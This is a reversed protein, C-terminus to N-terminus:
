EALMFSAFRFNPCVDIIQAVKSYPPVLSDTIAHSLRIATFGSCLVHLSLQSSVSVIKNDKTITKSNVLHYWSVPGAIFRISPIKVRKHNLYCTALATDVGDYYSGWYRVM